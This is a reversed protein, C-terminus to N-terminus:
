DVLRDVRLSEAVGRRRGGVAGVEEDALADAAKEDGQRGVVQDAVEGTVESIRDRDGGGWTKARDVVRQQRDLGDAGGAQLDRHDDESRPGVLRGLEFL